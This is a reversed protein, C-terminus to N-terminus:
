YHGNLKLDFDRLLIPFLELYINDSQLAQLMYFILTM